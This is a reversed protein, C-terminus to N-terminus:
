AYSIKVHSSNLRTSKRDLSVPRRASLDLVFRTTEGDEIAFDPARSRPAPLVGQVHSGFTANRPALWAAQWAGARLAEFRFSADWIPLADRLSLAFLQYTSP